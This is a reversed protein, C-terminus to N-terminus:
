RFKNGTTPGCVLSIYRKVVFGIWFVEM